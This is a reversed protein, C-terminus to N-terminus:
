LESLPFVMSLKKPNSVLIMCMALENSIMEYIRYEYFKFKIILCIIINKSLSFTSPYNIKLVYIM